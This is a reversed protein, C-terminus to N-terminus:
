EPPQPLRPARLSRTRRLARARGSRGSPSRTPAPSREGYVLVACLFQLTPALFQLMGLTSYPLRRAAATFLLLPTTSVIGAAGAARHRAAPFRLDPGGAAALGALRGCRSVAARDRHGPRHGRRGARDQAAPRLTAFSVCLTLSIWLQGLAGVALVSIGAAAIAVAIWQLRVAAGQARLPRAPRQGASQSLLRLQRRPHPRQHRRLRLAALQHRDADRDSRPHSRRGSGPPARSGRGAGRRRVARRPVAAVVPDPPRRHRGGAVAPWRRSISRSSAGCATPACASSRLRPEVQTTATQRPSAAANM